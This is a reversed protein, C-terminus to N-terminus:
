AWSKRNIWKNRVYNVAQEFAGYASIINDNLV